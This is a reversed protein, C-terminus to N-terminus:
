GPSQPELPDPPESTSTLSAASSMGAACWVSTAGRILIARASRRPCSSHATRGDATTISSTSGFYASSIAGTPSSCGTWASRGCAACGGSPTPTPERRGSPRASSRPARVAFFADFPASFKADRDRILFRLPYGERILVLNRAQQTVWAGTPNATVGGLWVRRTGLEMFFLVYLRRLAVTEVTFFDCAVIDAAQTRLFEAWSPGRATRGSRPWPPAARQAGHHGVGGGRAHGARGQDVPLGWRRHERALRVILQAVDPDLAPRGPRRHTYSWRRHAADRHWRLPTTPTVMFASWRRRSLLRSSMSLLARDAPELQVRRLQRHLVDLQHRLVISEIDKDVDSMRRVRAMDILRLALRYLFSLAM